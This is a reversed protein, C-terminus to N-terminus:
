LHSESCGPLAKRWAAASNRDRSCVKELLELPSIVQIVCMLFLHWPEVGLLNQILPDSFYFVQIKLPRCFDCYMHAKLVVARSIMKWRSKSAQFGLVSNIEYLHVDTSLVLGVGWGGSLM